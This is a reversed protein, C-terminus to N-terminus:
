LSLVSRWAQQAPVQPQLPQCAELDVDVRGDHVSKPEEAEDGAARLYSSIETETAWVHVAL